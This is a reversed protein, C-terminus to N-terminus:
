DFQHARQDREADARAGPLPTRNGPSSTSCSATAKRCGRRPVPCLTSPKMSGATSPMLWSSTSTNGMRTTNLKPSVIAMSPFPRFNALRRMYYRSTVIQMMTQRLAASATPFRGALLSALPQPCEVLARVKQQLDLADPHAALYDLHEEMAAYVAAAHTSSSHSNSAAIAFSALWTTSAPFCSARSPSWAIWCHTSHSMPGHLTAMRSPLGANCSALIPAIQQEVKQHSKYIWLLCEELEPSRDLSTIGYHAM